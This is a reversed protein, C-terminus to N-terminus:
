CYCGARFLLHLALSQLLLLVPLFYLHVASEFYLIIYYCRFEQSSRTLLTKAVLLGTHIATWVLYPIVLRHWSRGFVSRLDAKGKALGAVFYVLSVAYFACM